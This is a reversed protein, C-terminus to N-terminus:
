RIRSWVESLVVTTQRAPKAWTQHALITDTDKVQINWFGWLQKQDGLRYEYAVLSSGAVRSPAAVWFVSPWADPVSLRDVDVQM